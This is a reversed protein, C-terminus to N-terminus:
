KIENGEEDLFPKRETNIELPNGDKDIIVAKGAEDYKIYNYDEDILRGERDILHGDTNVLRLKDDVFKHEKLFKNEVWYEENGGYLVDAVKSSILYADVDGARNLYDNFDKFYKKNPENKYYVMCSILFQFERDSSLAEVTTSAYKVRNLGIKNIEGRIERAKLAAEKAESLKIGGKDLKEFIDRLEEQLEKLKAEKADDWLGQKRLVKDLNEAFPADDAVARNWTKIRISEAEERDKLGPNKIVLEIEAGDKNVVTFTRKDEM